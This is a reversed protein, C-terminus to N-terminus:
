GHGLCVMPLMRFRPDGRLQELVSASTTDTLRTALLVLDPVERELLSRCPRAALACRVVRINAAELVAAVSAAREPDHEVLLM